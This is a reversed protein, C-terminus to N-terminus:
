PTQTAVEGTHGKNRSTKATFTDFAVAAKLEDLSPWAEGEKTGIRQIRIEEMGGTRKTDFAIGALTGNRNYDSVLFPVIRNDPRRLYAIHGLVFDDVTCTKVETM